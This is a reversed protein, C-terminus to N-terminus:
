DPSSWVGQSLEGVTKTGEGPEAKESPPAVQPLGLSQVVQPLPLVVRPQIFSTALLFQGRQALVDQQQVIQKTETRALAKQVVEQHVDNFTVSRESAQQRKMLVDQLTFPWSLGLRNGEELYNFGAPLRYLQVLTAVDRPSLDYVGYQHPVFMIDRPHDSHGLLGLAHGIEHLVTHKVESDNNYEKVLGGETLGISIEASYIRGDSTWSTQCHGLSTRNIRRWQVNIQSAQLTSVQQFQVLQETAQQWAMFCGWVM